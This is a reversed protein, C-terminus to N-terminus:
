CVELLSWLFFLFLFLNWSFSIINAYRSRIHKSTAWFPSIFKQYPCRCRSATCILPSSHSDLMIFILNYINHTDSGYTHHCYYNSNDYKIIQYHHYKYIIMIFYFSQFLFFLFLFLFIILNWNFFINLDHFYIVAHKIHDPVGKIRGEEAVSLASKFPSYLTHGIM